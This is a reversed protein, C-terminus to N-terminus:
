LCIGGRFDQSYGDRELRWFRYRTAPEIGLYEWDIIVANQGEEYKLDFPIVVPSNAPDNVLDRRSDCGSSYWFVCCFIYSM